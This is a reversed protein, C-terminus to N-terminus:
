HGQGPQGPEHQGGCDPQDGGRRRLVHVLGVVMALMVDDDMPM